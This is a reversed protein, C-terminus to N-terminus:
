DNEKIIGDGSPESDQSTTEARTTDVDYMQDGTYKGEKMVLDYIVAGFQYWGKFRGNLYGKRYNSLLQAKGDPYWIYMTGHKLGDVYQTAHQLRGNDYNLYATGTFPKNKLFLVSDIKTLVSDPVAKDPLKYQQLMLKDEDVYQAYLVGISIIIATLIIIVTQKNM